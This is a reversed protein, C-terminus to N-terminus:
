VRFDDEDKIEIELGGFKPALWNYSAAFLMFVLGYIVPAIIIPILLTVISKGSYNQASMLIFIFIIITYPIVLAMIVSKFVSTLSFKKIRVKRM